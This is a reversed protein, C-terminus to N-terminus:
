IEKKNWAWGFLANEDRDLHIISHSELTEDTEASYSKQKDLSIFIQKESKSYLYLIRELTRDAIDKLLFSDYALFPLKVLKMMALDFIILAKYANGTGTDNPTGFSYTRDHLLIKPSNFENDCISENINEMEKNILSEIHCLTKQRIELYDQLEKKKTAELNNKEEYAENELRIKELRKMLESHHSLVLSSINPTKILGELENQLEDIIKNIENLRQQLEEKKEDLEDKLISSIQRHFEEIEEILKINANPFFELLENYKTKDQSFPIINEEISSIRAELISKRRRAEKLDKKIVKARESVTYDVSLSNTSLQQTLSDLEKQIEQIEKKNKQYETKTIKAVFRYKQAKKFYKAKDSAEKSEKEHAEIKQYFEFYKILAVIIDENNNRGKIDLPHNEDYNELGYVRLFRSVSERFTMGYISFQYKESLFECYERKTMKQKKIYNDDCQYVENYNETSRLFYFYKNDFQFKFGIEHNGVNAIVDKKQAYTSGGFAFDIILLLTSKGISNEAVKSGLIVNLGQHFFIYKQNFKECYIECLM